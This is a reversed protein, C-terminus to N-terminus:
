IRATRDAAAATVMKVELHGRLGIGDLSFKTPM